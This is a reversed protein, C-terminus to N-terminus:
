LIIARVEKEEPSAIEAELSVPQLWYYVEWDNWVLRDTQAGIVYEGTLPIQWLGGTADASSAADNKKHQRFSGRM